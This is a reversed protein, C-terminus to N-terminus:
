SDAFLSKKRARPDGYAPRPTRGFPVNLATHQQPSLVDKSAPARLSAGGAALHVASFAGDGDDDASHQVM